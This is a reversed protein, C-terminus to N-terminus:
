GLRPGIQIKPTSEAQRSNQPRPDATAKMNKWMQNVLVEVNMGVGTNLSPVQGIAQMAGAQAKKYAATFVKCAARTRTLPKEVLSDFLLADVDANPGCSVIVMQLHKMAAMISNAIGQITGPNNNVIRHSVVTVGKVDRRMEKSMFTVEDQSSRMLNFISAVLNPDMNQVLMNNKLHGQFHLYLSCVGASIVFPVQLNLVAAIDSTEYNMGKEALKHQLVTMQNNFEDHCRVLEEQSCM